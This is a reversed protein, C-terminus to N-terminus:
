YKLEHAFIGTFPAASTNQTQRVPTLPRFSAGIDARLNKPKLTVGEKLTM